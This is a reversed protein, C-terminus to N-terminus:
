PSGFAGSPQWPHTPRVTVYKPLVYLWCRHEGSKMLSKPCSLARPTSKKQVKQGRYFLLPCIPSTDSHSCWAEAVVLGGTYMQYAADGRGRVASTRYINLLL